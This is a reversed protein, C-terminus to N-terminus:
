KLGKIYKVLDLFNLWDKKECKERFSNKFNCHFQTHCERCLCVGNNIDFRIDSHYSGDAIHHAERYKNSGSVQCVKDRRIVLARWIRYARTKRWNM